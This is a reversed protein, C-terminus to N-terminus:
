LKISVNFKYVPQNSIVGVGVGYLGNKYQMFLNTSIEALRDKGLSGGVGVFFSPKYKVKSVIPEKFNVSYFRKNIKNFQLTDTVVFEGKETYVTDTYVRVTMCDKLLAATDIDKIVTDIEKVIKPKGEIVVPKDVYVTVPEKEKCPPATLDSIYLAAIAGLAFAVVSRLVNIFSTM